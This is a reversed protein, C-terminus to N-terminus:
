AENCYVLVCAYMMNELSIGKSVGARCDRYVKPIDLISINKGRAQKYFELEIAKDLPDAKLRAM